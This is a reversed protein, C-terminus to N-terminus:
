RGDLPHQATLVADIRTNARDVAQDLRNFGRVIIGELQAFKTDVENHTAVDQHLRIIENELDRINQFVREIEEEKKREWDAQRQNLSNYIRWLATAFLSILAVGALLTKLVIEIEIGM